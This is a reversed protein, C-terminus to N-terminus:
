QCPLTHDTERMIKVTETILERLVQQDVDALKKIYLCSKAIKFKGLKSLLADHKDFGMIIYLSINQKRPSFGVIAFDGEHGSAYKYHYQDFGIISPGWMKPPMGTIEQMMAVIAKSDERKQADEVSEIFDAVSVETPKTKNEPM